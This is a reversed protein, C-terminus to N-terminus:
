VINKRYIFSKNKIKKKVLKHELSVNSIIKNEEQQLILNLGIKEKWLIEDFLINNQEVM